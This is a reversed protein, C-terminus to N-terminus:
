AAGPVLRPLQNSPGAEEVAPPRRALKWGPGLFWYAIVGTAFFTYPGAAAGVTTPGAFGMVWFSILPATIAALALRVEVDAIRRLRRVALFIVDLTFLVWLILGPLGLEDTMFNFQTEASVSHGELLDTSKGGFGGVAGVSGLGVGFPAVAIQHPLLSLAGSKAKSSTGVVKEPGINEYRKFTGSGEFAVFIAGLPLALLGIALLTIV